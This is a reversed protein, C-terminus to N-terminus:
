AIASSWLPEIVASFTDAVAESDRVSVVSLCFVLISINVTLIYFCRNAPPQILDVMQLGNQNKFHGIYGKCCDVGDQLHIRLNRKWTWM